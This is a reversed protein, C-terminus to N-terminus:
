LIPVRIYGLKRRLFVFTLVYKCLALVWPLLVFLWCPPRIVRPFLLFRCMPIILIQCSFYLIFVIGFFILRTSAPVKFSPSMLLLNHCQYEIRIFVYGFPDVPTCTCTARTIINMLHIAILKIHIYKWPIKISIYILLKNWSCLFVRFVMFLYLCIKM